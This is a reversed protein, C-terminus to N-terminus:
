CGLIQYEPSLYVNFKLDDRVADRVGGTCLKM